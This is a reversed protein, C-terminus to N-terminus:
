EQSPSFVTEPTQTAALVLFVAAPYIHMFLRNLSYGLHWELDYPTILYVGYYGMIQVALIAFGILVAGSKDRIRSQFLLFYAGLVMYIGVKYWGGGHLFFDTFSSFILQHRSIDTAKQIIVDLSGSLFESPPAFQFKFYLLLSLPLLLGALYLLLDHFSRKWLSALFLVGASALVFFIGENKTWAALVAMFAALVIFDKGKERYHFFLFIVSALIYFALPLDATQRAAEGLFFYVGGLLIVGFAGQGISKLSALASFSLGLPALFFLLGLSIPVYPTDKNLIDWRSAIDLALLPPYDAHFMVYLDKSFADQWTEQNRYIFRASRNYIMWADWDGHAKKRSVDLFGALSSVSLTVAILVLTIQLGTIKLRPAPIRPTKRYQLYAAAAVAFFLILEVYLFYPNGAFLVLYIFYLLCSIGLGLGIGMSLKFLLDIPNNKDAWLLHFLLIGTLIPLSFSLLTLIIM